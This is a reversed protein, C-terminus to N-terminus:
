YIDLNAGPEPVMGTFGEHRSREQQFQELYQSASIWEGARIATVAQALTLARAAHYNISDFHFSQDEPNFAPNRAQASQVQAYEAQAQATKGQRAYLNGLALHAEMAPLSDPVALRLTTQYAAIADADRGALALAQGLNFVVEPSQPMLAFAASFYDTTTIFEQWWVALNGLGLYIGPISRDTQLAASFRAAARERQQLLQASTEANLECDANTLCAAKQNWDLTGLNYEAIALGPKLRL